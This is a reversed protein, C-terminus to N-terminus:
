NGIGADCSEEEEFQMAHVGKGGAAAYDSVQSERGRPTPVKKIGGGEVSAARM